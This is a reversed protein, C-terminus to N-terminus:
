LLKCNEIYHDIDFTKIQGTALDGLTVKGNNVSLVDLLGRPSQILQDPRLGIAKRFDDPTKIDNNM